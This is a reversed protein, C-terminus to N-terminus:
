NNNIREYKEFYRPTSLTMRLMTVKDDKTEVYIHLPPLYDNKNKKYYDKLYYKVGDSSSLLTAETKMEYKDFFGEPVFKYALDFAEKVSLNIENKQLYFQLDNIPKDNFYDAYLLGSVFYKNNDKGYFGKFTDYDDGYRPHGDSILNNMLAPGNPLENAEITENTVSTCGALFVLVVFLPIIYRKRM